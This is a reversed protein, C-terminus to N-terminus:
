SFSVKYYRCSDLCQLVPLLGTLVLAVSAFRALMQDMDEERGPSYSFVCVLGIQKSNVVIIIYSM